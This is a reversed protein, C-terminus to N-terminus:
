LVKIFRAGKQNMIHSIEFGVMVIVVAVNAAVKLIDGADLGNMAVKRAEVLQQTAEANESALIDANIKDILERKEMKSKKYDEFIKM